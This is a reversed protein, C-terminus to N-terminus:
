SEASMEDSDGLSSQTVNLVLSPEEWFKGQLEYHDLHNWRRSKVLVVFDESVM